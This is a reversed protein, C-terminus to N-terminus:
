PEGKEVKVDIIAGAKPVTAAFHLHLVQRTLAKALEEPAGLRDAIEQLKSRLKSDGITASLASSQPQLDLLKHAENMFTPFYEWDRAAQDLAALPPPAFGPVWDM